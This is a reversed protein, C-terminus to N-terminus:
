YVAGLIGSDRIEMLHLYVRTTMLNLGHAVDRKIATVFAESKAADLPGRVRVEVFACEASNGLFINQGADIHIMCRAPPKSLHQALDALIDRRLTGLSEHDPTQDTYLHVYPM